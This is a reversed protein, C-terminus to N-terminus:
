DSEARAHAGRGRCNVPWLTEGTVGQLRPWGAGELEALAYPPGEGDKDAALWEPRHTRQDQTPKHHDGDQRWYQGWVIGILEIEVLATEGDTQLGGIGLEQTARIRQPAVHQAAKHIAGAD